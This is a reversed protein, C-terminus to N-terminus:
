VEGEIPVPLIEGLVWKKMREYCQAPTEDYRAEDNWYVIERALQSAVDFMSAVRDTDEPDVGQMNIGRAKGLAGLACVAGESTELEHKVLEKVPMEDLARYLDVLLRQGRKGKIASAVQGRWCILSWGGDGDDNYGSRSM